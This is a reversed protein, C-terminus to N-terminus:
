FNYEPIKLRFKIYNFSMKKYYNKFNLSLKIILRKIQGIM